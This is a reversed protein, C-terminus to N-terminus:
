DHKWEKLLKDLLAILMRVSEKKRNLAWVDNNKGKCTVMGLRELADLEIRIRQPTAHEAWVKEDNMFMLMDKETVKLPSDVWLQELVRFRMDKGFYQELVTGDNKRAM